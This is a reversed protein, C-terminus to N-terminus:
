RYLTCNVLTQSKALCQDRGVLLESEGEGNPLLGEVKVVLFQYGAGTDVLLLLFRWALDPPFLFSPFGPFEFDSFFHSINWGTSGELLCSFLSSHISNLLFWGSQFELTLLTVVLWGGLPSQLLVSSDLVSYGLNHSIISHCLFWCCRRLYWRGNWRRWRRPRRWRCRDKQLFWYLHKITVRGRHLLLSPRIPQYWIKKVLKLRTYRAASGFLHLYCIIFLTIIM